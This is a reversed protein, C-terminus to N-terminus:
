FFNIHTIFIFCLVLGNFKFKNFFFNLFFFFFFFFFFFVVVVVVFRTKKACRSFEEEMEGRIAILTEVEYDEV